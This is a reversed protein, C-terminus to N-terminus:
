QEMYRSLVDYLDRCSDQLMGPVLSNALVPEFEHERFPTKQLRAAIFRRAEIETFPRLEILDRMSDHLPSGDIPRDQSFIDHLPRQSSAVLQIVTGHTRHHSLGRLWQRVEMGREDRNLRGMDDLLVIIHRGRLLMQLPKRKGTGLIGILEKEADTRRLDQYITLSVVVTESDIQERAKEAILNLLTTKGSRAPGIITLNGGLRLRDWLRRQEWDRGVIQTEDGLAGAGAFPNSPPTAEILRFARLEQLRLYVAPLYWSAGDPESTYLAQRVAAVARQVSWGVALKRYLTPIISDTAARMRTTLQMAVVVRAGAYSLAAATGAIPDSTDNQASQCASLVILRPLNPLAAFRGAEVWDDGGAGYPGDLLLAGVGNEFRGHGYYDLVDIYPERGLRQHLAEMTVPPLLSEIEVPLGQLEDALHQRARQESDRHAQHSFGARPALTLVRLKTGQPHAPPLPHAFPIVRSCSLVTGRTLLIPQRVGYALEWPLAAIMMATTDFKLIVEGSGHGISLNYLTDLCNILARDTLLAAGLMRGVRAHVDVPIMGSQDTGEWLDLGRLMEIVRARDDNLRFFREIRPYDPYQRANLARLLLPVLTLPFPLLFSASDQGGGVTTLTVQVRGDQAPQHFHIVISPTEPM